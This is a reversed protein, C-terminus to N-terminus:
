IKYFFAIQYLIHLCRCYVDIVFNNAISDKTVDHFTTYKWNEHISGYGVAIIEDFNSTQGKKHSYFSSYTFIFAGEFTNKDRQSASNIPPRWIRKENHMNFFAAQARKIRIAM